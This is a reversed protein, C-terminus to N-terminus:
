AFQRLGGDVSARAAVSNRVARLREREARTTCASCVSSFFPIHLRIRIRRLLRNRQVSEGYPLIM